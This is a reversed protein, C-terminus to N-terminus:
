KAFLYMDISARNRPIGLMYLPRYYTARKFLPEGQATLNKFLAYIKDAVDIASATQANDPAGGYVVVFAVSRGKLFTQAKVQQIVAESASKSGQLLGDPDVNIQFSDLTTEVSSPLVSLQTPSTSVSTATGQPPTPTTVLNSPKQYSVALLGFGGAVTVAGACIALLVARRSSTRRAKHPEPTPFAFARIAPTVPSPFGPTDIVPTQFLYPTDITTVNERAPPSPAANSLQPSSPAFIISPLSPSAPTKDEEISTSNSITALRGSQRLSSSLKLSDPIPVDLARAIAATMASASPFRDLPDKALARMIVSVLSPSIKPNILDPSPPLDHMHQLLIALTTDGRFPTVGTVMEYLIVGLSYLDSRENGPYGTAQEPSMYLPTGFLVGTTATSPISVLKVTGFDTLIPEGMPNLTTNHMDLLINAPKIDRHIMGQQHAYDIAQSIPTFLNVLEQVEPLKGNRSTQRIYSALTQGAVYDMVIYAAPSLPTDSESVSDVHFDHIAIINPHHLSAIEQAERTFRLIFNPDDSLSLHLVKIAVPRQLQIDRAKWVEAIGGHGLQEVLEYKGLRKSSTPGPTPPLQVEQMARRVKDEELPEKLESFIALARGYSELAADRDQLVQQVDGIIKLMRARKLSAQEAQYLAMVQKYKQLAAEQENRSRYIDGVAELARAEESSDKLRRFGAASQEYCQLAADVDYRLLHVDGMAQYTRAERAGDELYHFFVLAQEYSKLAEDQQALARQVDGLVLLTRAQGAYDEVQDFLALAQEYNELAGEWIVGYYNFRGQEYAIEARTAPSLKLAPDLAAQLLAGIHGRQGYAEQIAQQWALLGQQEDYALLHYYWDPTQPAEETFYDLARKHYNRWKEPEDKQAEEVLAERLLEHFAYRYNGRSEIYPYRILQNFRELAEAEPLLEPFMRRLLPLTFSRLLVGYRTLDKFPFKLQKLVRENTFRMLAIESFEQVQLEPVNSLSFPESLEERHKWLDAIISVCLAHGRTVEYVQQRLAADQMGMQALYHDVEPKELMALTIRRQDRGNIVEFKLPIRSSIVVSFQRGKRHLQTRIGPLLENVVWQGVELGEPEAFWECTDLLLVLRPLRYNKLQTSWAGTALEQMQHRLERLAQDGAENAETEARHSRIEALQDLRQQQERKLEEDMQQIDCYPAIDSTLHDLIALPDNRLEEQAFDLLVIHTNERLTQETQTYEALRHLLTTKGIGGLGTIMLAWPTEKLLFASYLEQERARGVFLNESM